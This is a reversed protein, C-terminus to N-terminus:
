RGAVLGAYFEATEPALQCVEIMHGLQATTDVYAARIRGPFDVSYDYSLDSARLLRRLREWEADGRPVSVALHHLRIAFSGDDPLPRRYFAVPGSVPEILEVVLNGRTAIAYRARWPEIPREGALYTAERAPLDVLDRLGLTGALTRKARELDPTVYGLQWVSGLLDSITEARPPSLLSERTAAVM